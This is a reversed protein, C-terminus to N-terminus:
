TNGDVDTVTAGEGSAVAIGTLRAAGRSVAADRRAVIAQSNPGPIETKLVISSM